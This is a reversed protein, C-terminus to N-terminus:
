LGVMSSVRPAIACPDHQSLYTDRGLGVYAGVLPYGCKPWTRPPLVLSRVSFYVGAFHLCGDTGLHPYITTLPSQALVRATFVGLFRGLSHWNPGGVYDEFWSLSVFPSGSCAVRSM